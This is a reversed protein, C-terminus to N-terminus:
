SFKENFVAFDSQINGTNKKSKTFNKRHFRVVACKFFGLLLMCGEGNEEIYFKFPREMFAFPYNTQTGNIKKYQLCVCPMDKM